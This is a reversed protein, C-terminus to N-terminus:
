RPWRPRSWPGSSGPSRPSGSGPPRGDLTRFAKEPALEALDLALFLRDESSKPELQELLTNTEDYLEIRGMNLYAMALLAEVAVSRPLHQDAQKLYVVAEKLRGSYFEVLGRLMNLQGPEAGRDEAEDIAQLAAQADGSMAELIAREVAAQRNQARLEDRGLKTQYAFFGTTLMAVFLCALLAAVAPHRKAWKKARDLPGARRASIAYRNAYRRLDEAMAKGTRYRGDPDKELAKLCITELDVPVRRNVKRPPPPDKHMIQAIVQDRREAAFPPELTLLEYLTAGLSYIDTRRDLPARGAAIQEPSMYMPTGVFEGTMTMGPQELLLALGFDNVSLRGDPSLLLNSPKIDRHIVGENHAHDLADAVDAVMRAVQDFYGSAYNSASLNLLTDSSARPDSEVNPGTAELDASRREDAALAEARSRRMQKIVHDLSPGDILEMAYFHTDDQEGTAYVPVINTHHLRAAAEAERRFRHVARGTLGLGGSLVKLAVQRNLSVQRAAYVVGMGGRGLERLIEFDGLRVGTQNTKAEDVADAGAQQYADTKNPDDLSM